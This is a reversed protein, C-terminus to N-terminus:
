YFKNEAPELPLGNREAYELWSGVYNKVNKFGLKEAIDAATGARYGSRCSFIIPSDHSPKPRSYKSEFQNAGLKLEEEVAKLPINISTPITGTGALEDPRRVDILLKEPHNPLDVIEDYAAVVSLDITHPDFRNEPCKSCYCRHNGHALSNNVQFKDSSRISDHHYSSIPALKGAEVIYSRVSGVNQAIRSSARLRLTAVRLCNLSM